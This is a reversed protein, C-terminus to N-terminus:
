SISVKRCQIEEMGHLRGQNALFDARENYQDNSHGRTWKVSIKSGIKIHYRYHKLILEWIDNNAVGEFDRGAWSLMWNQNFADEINKHDTYLVLSIPSTFELLVRLVARMEMRASTTNIFKGQYLERIKGNIILVIGIGGERAGTKKKKTNWCSGDTYAIVSLM